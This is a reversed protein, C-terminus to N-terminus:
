QTVYVTSYQTTLGSTGSNRTVQPKIQEGKVARLPFTKSANASDSGISQVVEVPDPLDGFLGNITVTAGLTEATLTDSAVLTITGAAVTAITYDGDNSTSGSVNITDNVKFGATLFGNGTDTITDPNSNVFAITAATITTSISMVWKFRFGVTGGSSVSTIDFTISGDFRENGTYEFIGTVDDILKWRELTSGAVLSSGGTGFTMDRFVNNIITGTATANNNVFAAAIYHSNELNKSAIAIVRPDNQDLGAQSWTGTHTVTFPMNIQFSNTLQNYVTAGGDYNTANDTDVTLTDGNVLTTTTDTLTISDSIFSGM